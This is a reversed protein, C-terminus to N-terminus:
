PVTNCKGFRSALLFERWPFHHDTNNRNAQQGKTMSCRVRHQRFGGTSSILDFALKEQKGTRFWGLMRRFAAVCHVALKPFSSIAGSRGFNSASATLSSKHENVLAKPM